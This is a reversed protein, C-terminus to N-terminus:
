RQYTVRIMQNAVSEISVEEGAKKQLLCTSDFFDWGCIKGKRFQRKEEM